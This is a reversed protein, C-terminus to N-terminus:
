WFCFYDKIEETMLTEVLNNLRPKTTTLTFIFQGSKEKIWIFLSLGHCVCNESISM